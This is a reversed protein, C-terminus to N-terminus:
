AAPIQRGLPRRMLVRKPSPHAVATFGCADFVEEVGVYAEAAPHRAASTLPLGEVAEAGNTAAVEVAAALLARTVGGGRADRRVFFCPVFWVTGNEARDRGAMLPSRLIRAYRSRPGAACWGAPSGDAYALVGVPQAAAAAMEAFARRNPEGWGASFQKGSLLFFTCWCGTCTGSSDFLRALEDIDAGTVPRVEM